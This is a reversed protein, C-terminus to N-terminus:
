PVSMAQDIWDAPKSETPDPIEDPPEFPPEFDETLKGSAQLQMDVYVAYFDQIPLIELSYLHTKRDDPLRITKTLHHEIRNSYTPAQYPYSVMILHVKNTDGCKDPGFMIAFRSDGDVQYDGTDGESTLKNQAEEFDPPNWM